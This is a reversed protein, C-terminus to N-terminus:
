SFDASAYKSHSASGYSNEADDDDKDPNLAFNQKQFIQYRLARNRRIYFVIFFISV